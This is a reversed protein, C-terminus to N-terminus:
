GNLENAIAGLSQWAGGKFTSGVSV